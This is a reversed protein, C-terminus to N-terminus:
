RRATLRRWALGLLVLVFFAIPAVIAPEVWRSLPMYSRGWVCAESHELGSRCKWLLEAHPWVVGIVVAVLLQPLFGRRRLPAQDRDNVDPSV